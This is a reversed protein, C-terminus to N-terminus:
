CCRSVDGLAGNAPLELRFLARWAGVAFLLLACAIGLEQLRNALYYRGGQFGAFIAM